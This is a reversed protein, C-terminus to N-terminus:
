GSSRRTPPLPSTAAHSWGSVAAWRRGQVVALVPKPCRDITDLMLALAMADRLNEEDSYGAM